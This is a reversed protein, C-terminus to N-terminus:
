VQEFDFLKEHRADVTAYAWVTNSIGQSNFETKLQIAHEAIYDFLNSGDDFVPVYEILAYVYASNSLNRM